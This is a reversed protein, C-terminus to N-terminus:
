EKMKLLNAIEIGGVDEPKPSSTKIEGIPAISYFLLNAGLRNLLVNDADLWAKIRELSVCWPCNQMITQLTLIFIDDIEKDSLDSLDIETVSGLVSIPLWYFLLEDIKSILNNEMRTKCENLIYSYFFILEDIFDKDAKQKVYNWLKIWDRKAKNDQWNSWCIIAERFFRFIKTPLTQATFIDEFRKKKSVFFRAMFKPTYTFNNLTSMQKGESTILTNSGLVLAMEVNEGNSDGVFGVDEFIMEQVIVGMGIQSPDIGLSIKEMISARNFMSALVLKLAKELNAKTPELVPRSELIGTGLFPIQEMDELQSSSRIIIPKHKMENPLEQWIADVIKEVDLQLIKNRLQRALVELDEGLEGKKISDDVLARWKNWDFGEIKKLLMPLLELSVAVGKPVNFGRNLLVSLRIAKAGFHKDSLQSSLNKILVKNGLNLKLGLNRIKQRINQKKLSLKDIFSKFATEDSDEFLISHISLKLKVIQGEREKGWALVGEGGAIVPVGMMRAYLMAHSFESIEKPSSALVIASALAGIDGWNSPLNKLVVIDGDEITSLDQGPNFVKIRGIVRNGLEGKYILNFDVAVQEAEQNEEEVIATVDLGLFKSLQQQANQQDLIYATAAGDRLFKRMLEVIATYNKKNEELSQMIQNFLNIDVRALVVLAGALGMLPIDIRRQNYYTNAASALEEISYSRYLKLTNDILGMVYDFGKLDYLRKLMRAMVYHGGEPAFLLISLFFDRNDQFRQAVQEPYDWIHSFFKSMRRKIDIEKELEPYESVFVAKAVTNFSRILEDLQSLSKVKSINDGVPRIQYIFVKGDVIGGEISWISKKEKDIVEVASILEDKIKREKVIGKKALTWIQMAELNISSPLDELSSTFDEPVSIFDNKGSETQSDIVKEKSLIRRAKEIYALMDLATKDLLIKSRSSLELPYPFNNEKVDKSDIEIGGILSSNNLLELYNDYFRWRRVWPQSIFLRIGKKNIHNRSLLYFAIARRLPLYQKSNNLKYSLKNALKANLFEQLLTDNCFLQVRLTLQELIDANKYHNIEAEKLTIVARIRQQQEINPPLYQQILSSVDEKLLLDSKLFIEGIRGAWLYAPLVDQWGIDESLNVWLRDKDIASAELFLRLDDIDLKSFSILFRGAIGLGLVDAKQFCVGAENGFLLAGCVLLRVFVLLRKTLYKKFGM